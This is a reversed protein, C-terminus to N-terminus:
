TGASSNFGSSEVMMSRCRWVDAAIPSTSFFVGLAIPVLAPLHRDGDHPVHLLLVTQVSFYNTIKPGLGAFPVRFIISARSGKPIFILKTILVQLRSCSPSKKTSSIGDRDSVAM